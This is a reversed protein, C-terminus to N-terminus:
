SHRATFRGGLADGEIMALQRKHQGCKREPNVTPFSSVWGFVNPALQGNPLSAVVVIPATSPPNLTCYMAGGEVISHACNGCSSAEGNIKNTM